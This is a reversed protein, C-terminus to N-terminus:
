AQADAKEKAPKLKMTELHDTNFITRQVRYAPKLADWDTLHSLAEDVSKAMGWFHGLAVVKDRFAKQDDSLVGKKAKMELWAVKGGPLCIFIDPTGRRVGESKLRSAVRIHRKEGNPIARCELEPRLAIKLYDILAVQLRHESVVTPNRPKM